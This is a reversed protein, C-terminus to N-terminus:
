LTILLTTVTLILSSVLSHRFLGLASAASSSPDRQMPSQSGIQTLGGYPGAGPYIRTDSCSNRRTLRVQMTKVAIPLPTILAIQLDVISAIPNVLNQNQTALTMLQQSKTTASESSLAGDQNLVQLSGYDKYWASYRQREDDALLLRM